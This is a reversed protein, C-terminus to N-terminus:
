KWIKSSFNIVDKDINFDYLNNHIAEDIFVNEKPYNAKSFLIKSHFHPVIEDKKGSIILLPSNVKNIKSYNDFHDFILYKVPYLFYKKRAIDTISTFPAELIISKFNYRTGMEVAVGSGLSEGYIIIQNHNTKLNKIAWNIASEADTYLNKETPKGKNGSYGRWALLLVGWGEDIYRKIRYAREGIDFSNGHFYILLPKNLNPKSYWSLLKENDSTPIHIERVGKLNYESPKKPIGSTNFLIKRQFLFLFFGFILYILIASYLYKM